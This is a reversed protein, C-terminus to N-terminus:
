LVLVVTVLVQDPVAVAVKILEVRQLQLIHDLLAQEVVEEALAVPEAAVVVTTQDLAVAVLM